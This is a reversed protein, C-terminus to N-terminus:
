NKNFLLGLEDKKSEQKSATASLMAEPIKSEGGLKATAPLGFSSSVGLQELEEQSFLSRLDASDNEKSSYLHMEYDEEMGDEMEMDYGMDMGEDEEMEMGLEMGMDSGEEMDMEEDMEMAQKKNASVWSSGSEGQVERAMEVEKEAKEEANEEGEKGDSSYSYRAEKRSPYYDENESYPVDMKEKMEEVKDGEESAEVEVTEPATEVEVSAEVKTEETSQTVQAEVLSALKSVQDTLAAFKEELESSAKKPYEQPINKEPYDYGEEPKGAYQGENHDKPEKEYTEELPGESLHKDLQGALNGEPHEQPINFEPYDEVKTDYDAYEPEMRSPREAEYKDVLYRYDAASATVFKAVNALLISREHLKMLDKKELRAIRKVTNAFVEKDAAFLEPFLTKSIDFAVQAREEVKKM